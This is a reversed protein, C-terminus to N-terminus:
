NSIMVQVRLLRAVPGSAEADDGLAFAAQLNKDGGVGPMRLDVADNVRKSM